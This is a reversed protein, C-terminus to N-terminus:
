RNLVARVKKALNIHTFPKQIFEVNDDLIGHLVKSDDTYGSHFIIKLDPQRAKLKEALQRGGMLPMIVDTLVLDFKERSNKFIRLAEEGNEASVVNYGFTRLNKETIKRVAQEDEVLLITEKGALDSLDINQKELSKIKENVVPFYIKFTTGIGEESYVYIFGNSQKVIGYVTALGLGTGKHKGKTTFFPEFIQRQTEKNMGFGTDSIAIMVYKGPKTGAHDKLYEEGFEKVVTEITLKGGDPMADRSNVALNMIIQDMQGPDVKIPEITPSLLIAIEIDEGLLRRLMKMQNNILQNINIIEPKVIQKHSFALLQSTLRAAKKGAKEIEEISDELGPALNKSLILECYGNIVTLLNNFDHAVGGALQGVAEMKQSQRLQEELKKRHTVDRLIGQIAIGDKYHISILTSEMNIIKGNSNTITFELDEQQNAATSINEFVRIMKEQYEKDILDIFNFNSESIEDLSLKFVERFKRNILEFKNNYCLFIVDQSKEILNRYKQESEMIASDYEKHATIDRQTGWIRYLLGQEIIGVSSNSLWIKEGNAATEQTEEEEIKYGSIIFKKNADYNVPNERDGYFYTIPKGTLSETTEMSYMKAFADNCEALYAHNYIFQIQDDLSLAIDLPEDLEFRYIGESSQRIFAQYREKSEKLQQEYKKRESIDRVITLLREEDGFNVKRSFVEVAIQKGQKNILPGQFNYTINPRWQHWQHKIKDQDIEKQFLKFVSHGTLEQKSYGSQKEAAQNIELVRGNLEYLYIPDISQDFLARYKQYNIQISQENLKKETIDLHTGAARVANGKSDWQLIRGRTFIWKWNGQYSKMRHEAEFKATEGHLHKELNQTLLKYDDPHVLATWKNIDKDFKDAPYGLIELSRKSVIFEDKKIDWTWIGLDAGMLALNFLKEKESVEKKLGTFTTLDRFVLIIGMNQGLTNQFVTGSEIIQYEKGDKSILTRSVPKRNNKISKIIEFDLNEIPKRTHTDVINFIESVAKNKAKEFSWGSLKEAMPNMSKIRGHIDTSVVGDGISDIIKQSLKQNNIRSYNKQKILYVFFLFGWMVPIIVGAFDEVAERHFPVGTNELLLSIIYILLSVFLVLTVINIDNESKHRFGFLLTFLALILAVISIINITILISMM